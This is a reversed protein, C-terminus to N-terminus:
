REIVEVREVEDSRVLDTVKNMAVTEANERTFDYGTALLRGDLWASWFYRYRQSTLTGGSAAMDTTKITLTGPMTAETTTTARGNMARTAASTLMTISTTPGNEPAPVWWRTMTRGEITGV